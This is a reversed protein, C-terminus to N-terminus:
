EQDHKSKWTLSPPHGAITLKQQALSDAMKRADAYLPSEQNIRVLGQEAYDAAIDTDNEYGRQIIKHLCNSYDRAFLTVKGPTGASYFVRAKLGTETDKVSHKLFKIAM